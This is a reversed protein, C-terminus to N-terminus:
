FRYKATIGMDAAATSERWYLDASPVIQWGQYDLEVSNRWSASFDEDAEAIDYEGAIGTKYSWIGRELEVGAALDMNTRVGQSESKYSINWIDKGYKLGTFYKWADTEGGTHSQRAGWYATMDDQSFELRSGYSIAAGGENYSFSSHPAFSFANLNGDWYNMVFLGVLAAGGLGMAIGGNDSDGGGSGGGTSRPDIRAAVRVGQTNQFFVRPAGAAVASQPVAVIQGGTSTARVSVVTVGNGVPTTTTILVVKIDDPRVPLGGT